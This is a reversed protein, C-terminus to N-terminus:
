WGAIPLTATISTLQVTGTSRQPGFVLSGPLIQLRYRAGPNLHTAISELNPEVTHPLGDLTVPIPTVQGGVVRETDLDVIQAYLHTAVPAATGTYSFRVRPHGLIEGDGEPVSFDANVAVAPDAPAGGTLIFGTSSAASVPSLALAGSGRATLTEAAQPPFATASRYGSQNDALWEFAPGTDVSRDRKLWRDFWRITTQTFRGPPGADRGCVSHGECNWVLKVPVKNAKLTRYTQEAHELPFLTDTTGQQLLTPVRVQDIFRSPSRYHLYTRFDDSLQGTAIGFALGDVARRDATHLFPGRPSLVGPPVTQAGAGLLFTGWTEKFRGHPAIMEVLSHGTYAPSIVDVRRDAAATLFQIIGGYSAGTMAVRPDGTRDLQVEPQRSAWDILARTDRVEFDPSDLMATGGSSGHGRADWTLVNYGAALLADVDPAGALKEDRSTPGREGYGHALMVLPARGDLADAPFFHVAIPTGDFSTVFADRQEATAAPAATVALGAILTLVTLFLRM